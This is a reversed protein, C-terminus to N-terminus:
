MHTPTKHALLSTSSLQAKTVLNCLPTRGIEVERRLVIAPQRRPPPLPLFLRQNASQPPDRRRVDCDEPARHHEAPEHRQPDAARHQHHQQQEDGRHAKRDERAFRRDRGLLKVLRREFIQRLDFYCVDPSWDSIRVEYATKAKLFCLFCSM